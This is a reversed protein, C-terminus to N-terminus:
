IFTYKKLKMSSIGDGSETLKMSDLDLQNFVKKTLTVYNYNDWKKSRLIRGDGSCFLLCGGNDQIYDYKNIMYVKKGITFTDGIKLSNKKM